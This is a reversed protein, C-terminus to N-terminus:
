ENSTSGGNHGTDGVRSQSAMAYVEDFRPMAPQAGYSTSALAGAASAFRVAELVSEAAMVDAATMLGNPGPIVTICNQGSDDVWIVAIGSSSGVSATVHSVDLSEARLM